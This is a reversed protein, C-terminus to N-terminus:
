AGEDWSNYYLWEMVNNYKSIFVGFLWQAAASSLRVVTLMIDKLVIFAFASLILNLILFIFCSLVLFPAIGDFSNDNLICYTIRNISIFLTNFYAIVFVLLILLLLMIIITAINDKAQAICVVISVCFVCLMMVMEIYKTIRVIETGAVTIYSKPGLASFITIWIGISTFLGPLIIILVSVNTLTTYIDPYDIHFIDKEILYDRVCDIKKICMFSNLMAALTYFIAALLLYNSSALKRFIRRLPGSDMTYSRCVFLTNQDTSKNKIRSKCNTCIMADERNKHGCVDCKM